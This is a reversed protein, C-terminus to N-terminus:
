LCMCLLDNGMFEKVVVVVVVVVADATAIRKGNM